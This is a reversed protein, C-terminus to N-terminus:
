DGCAMERAIPHTGWFFSGCAREFTEGASGGLVITIIPADATRGVRIKTYELRLLYVSAPFLSHREM